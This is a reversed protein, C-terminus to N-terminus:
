APSPQSVKVRTLHSNWSARFSTSEPMSGLIQAIGRCRREAGGGGYLRMAEEFLRVGDIAQLLTVLRETTVDLERNRMTGMM